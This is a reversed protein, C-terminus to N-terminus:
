KNKLYKDNRRTFFPKFGISWYMNPYYGDTIVPLNSLSAYKMGVGIFFMGDSLRVDGSIGINSFSSFGSLSNTLTVVPEIIYGKNRKIRYGAGVAIGNLKDYNSANMDAIVSFDLGVIFDFKENLLISIDCNTSHIGIDNNNLPVGFVDTSIGVGFAIPSINQANIGEAIFVIVILLFRKM